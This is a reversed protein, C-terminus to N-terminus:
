GGRMAAVGAAYGAYRADYARAAQGDPEWRHTAEAVQGKAFEALSGVAEGAQRGAMYAALIAAGKATGEEDGARAEVPVGLVDAVLQGAFGGKSKLMGGTLAVQRVAGAEAKIQELGYRLTMCPSELLLRAMLGPNSLLSVGAGDLMARADPLETVNEGQFFGWLMAGDAEAGASVAGDTLEDAVEGFGKGSLGALGKVYEAFGVTGNRVCVMLMTKGALADTFAFPSATFTSAVGSPLVISITHTRFPVTPN